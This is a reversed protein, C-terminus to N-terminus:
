SSIQSSLSYYYYTAQWYVLAILVIEM